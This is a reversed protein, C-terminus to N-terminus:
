KNLVLRVKFTGWGQQHKEVLPMRELFFDGSAILRLFMLLLLYSKAKNNKEPKPVFCGHYCSAQTINYGCKTHIEIILTITIILYISM